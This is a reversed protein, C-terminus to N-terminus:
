FEATLSFSFLDNDIEAQKERQAVYSIKGQMAKTFHFMLGAGLQTRKITTNSLTEEEAMSYRAFLTIADLNRLEKASFDLKLAPELTYGKRDLRSVPAARLNEESKYYYSRVSLTQLDLVADVGLAQFDADYRHPDGPDRKTDQGVRLDGRAGSLGIEFRGKFWGGHNLVLGVRGTLTRDSNYDFASQRVADPVEFGPVGNGASLVYNLGAHPGVRFEGEGMVGVENYHAPMVEAAGPSIAAFRNIASFWEDNHIGFPWWYRGAVIRFTAPGGEALDWIIKAETLVIDLANGVFHMEIVSSVGEFPEGGVFLAADNRFGGENNGTRPSVGSVLIQPSSNPIKGFDEQPQAYGLTIYGHFRFFSAPDVYQGSPTKRRLDETGEDQAWSGGPLTLAYILVFPILRKVM